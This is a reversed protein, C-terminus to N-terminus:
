YDWARRVGRETTYMKASFNFNYRIKDKGLRGKIQIIKDNNGGEFHIYIINKSVLKGEKFMFNSGDYIFKFRMLNNKNMIGYLILVMEKEKKLIYLLEGGDSINNNRDAIMLPLRVKKFANRKTVCEVSSINEKFLEYTKEVDETIAKKIKGAKDELMIYDINKDLDRGAEQAIDKIIFYAVIVAAIIMILEIITFGLDKKLKFRIM